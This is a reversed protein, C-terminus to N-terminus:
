DDGVEINESATGQAAAAAAEEKAKKEAEERQAQQEAAKKKIREAEARAKEKKEAAAKDEEAKKEAAIKDEEMKKAAVLRDEEAQAAAAADKEEKQVREKEAVEAAMREEEAMRKEAAIKDLKARDAEEQKQRLKMAQDREEEMHKNAAIVDQALPPAPATNQVAPAATQAAGAREVWARYAVTKSRLLSYGNDWILVVTGSEQVTYTGEGVSTSDVKMSPVLEEDDSGGVDMMKRMMVKFSVDYSKIAMTWKLTDGAQVNFTTKLDTRAAIEIVEVRPQKRAVDFPAEESSGTARRALYFVAAGKTKVTELIWGAYKGRRDDKVSDAGDTAGGEAPEKKLVAGIRDKAQGVFDTTAQSLNTTAQHLRDVQSKVTENQAVKSAVDKVYKMPNAAVKMIMDRKRVRQLGEESAAPAEVLTVDEMKMKRRASHGRFSTQIRTAADHWESPYGGGVIGPIPPPLRFM